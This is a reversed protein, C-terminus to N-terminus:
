ESTRVPAVVYLYSGDGVPRILAPSTPTTLAVEVDRDGVAELVNILYPVSFAAAVPTGESVADIEVAASGVEPTKSSVVLKGDHASLHVYRYERLTTASAARVARLLEVARVRAKQRFEVPIVQEYNPFMGAIFPAAIVLGPVSFVVHSSSTSIEVAEFSGDGVARALEILADAPIIRNIATNADRELRLTKVALRGGDTAALVMESGSVRVNVGTLHPRADDRSCAFAVQRIAEAFENAPVTLAPAASVEPFAPYLDPSMGNLEFVSKGAEIRVSEGSSSIRVEGDPLSGIVEGLLKGPILASGTRSVTGHVEARIHLDLDTGLARVTDPGLAELLIGQVAPHTSRAPVARLALHVARWLDRKSVVIEM